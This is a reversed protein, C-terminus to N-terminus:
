ESYDELGKWKANCLLCKVWRSNIDGLTWSNQQVTIHTSGLEIMSHLDIWKIGPSM